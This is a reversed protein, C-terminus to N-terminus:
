WLSESKLSSVTTKVHVIIANLLIDGITFALKGFTQGTLLWHSNSATFDDVYYGTFIRYGKIKM